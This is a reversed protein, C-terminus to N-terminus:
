AALTPTSGCSTTAGDTTSGSSFPMIRKASATWFMGSGPNLPYPIVRSRLLSPSSTLRTVPPGSIEDESGASLTEQETDRNAAAGVSWSKPTENNWDPWPSIARLALLSAIQASLPTSGLLPRGVNLQTVGPSSVGIPSPGMTSNRQKLPASTLVALMSITGPKILPSVPVTTRTPPSTIMPWSCIIGPRMSIPSMGSASPSPTGSSMSLQGSTALASWASSSPSPMPLAQSRQARSASLSLSPSPMQPLTSLQGSTALSSWASSSSSPMPLAQSLQARSASLSLSPSPMQPLTSLQGVSALASWASSSLSPMPLAQSLQARSASLSLSPSPMQPSTSLQGTTALASWASSSTSPM